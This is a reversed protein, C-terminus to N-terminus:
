LRVCRNAAQRLPSQPSNLQRALILFIRLRYSGNLSNAGSAASAHQRSTKKTTVM